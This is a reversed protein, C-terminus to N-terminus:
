CGTLADFEARLAAAEGPPTLLVVTIPTPLNRNAESICAFQEALQQTQAAGAKVKNEIVIHHVTQQSDGDGTMLQIEINVIRSVLKDYKKELGVEVNLLPHSMAASFREPGGSCKAVETLFAQLFASSFGHPKNPALLFAAFASLNTETLRGRGESLAYFINM